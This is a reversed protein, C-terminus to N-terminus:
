KSRLARFNLRPNKELGCGKWQHVEGNDNEFYADTWQCKSGNACRCILRSLEKLCDIELSSYCWHISSSIIWHRPKINTVSVVANQPPHKEDLSFILLSIIIITIIILIIIIITITQQQQQQRRNCAKERRYKEQVLSLGRSSLSRHNLPHTSAELVWTRQKLGPRLRRINWPSFIGLM